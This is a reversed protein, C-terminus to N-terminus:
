AAVRVSRPLAAVATESVLILDVGRPFMERNAILQTRFRAPLPAASFLRTGPIGPGSLVLEDGEDFKEVQVVLMTSHDPYELSGLAFTEFPPMAASDCVFAFAAQASDTTQPAGTHFKLWAAVEGAAALGQDLWFPTEYDLLTLAVAAASARLPPPPALKSALPRPLGPRATAEMVTRFVAQSALAPDDFAPALM